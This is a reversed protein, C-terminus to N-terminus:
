LISVKELILIASFWDLFLLVWCIFEGDNRCYPAIPDFMWAFLLFKSRMCFFFSCKKRAFSRVTTVRFPRRLSQILLLQQEIRPNITVTSLFASANSPHLVRSLNQPIASHIPLFFLHIQLLPLWKQQFCSIKFELPQGLKKHLSLKPKFISNWKSDMCNRLEM